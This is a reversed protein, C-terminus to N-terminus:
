GPEKLIVLEVEHTKERGYYFGNYHATLNHFLTQRSPTQEISCSTWALMVLVGAASFLYKIRSLLKSIIKLYLRLFFLYEINYDAPIDLKPCFKGTQFL